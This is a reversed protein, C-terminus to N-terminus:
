ENIGILFEVILFMLYFLMLYVGERKTLIKDRKSLYDITLSSLFMFLTPIIMVEKAFSFPKILILIGLAITGDWLVTGFIDGIGLESHKERVSKLSFMLEPLTTGLAIIVSGLILPKIGILNSLEWGYKVTFYASLILIGLSLVLLILYGLANKKDLYKKRKFLKFDKTLTYYFYLGSFILIGGDIRSFNGDLALLLPILLIVSYLFNEKIDEKKFRLGKISALIIIGLILSLDAVNSGILTGAGLAPIEKVASIIGIVTEPLVTIFAIFFFSIVFESIHLTKSLKSSYRIALQSSKALVGLSILFLIIAIIM